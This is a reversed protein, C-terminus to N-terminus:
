RIEGEAAEGAAAPVAWADDDAWSLVVKDDPAVASQGQGIAALQGLAGADLRATSSATRRGGPGVVRGQGAQVLDVQM